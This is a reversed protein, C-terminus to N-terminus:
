KTTFDNQSLVPALTFAPTMTTSTAEVVPSIIDLSKVNFGGATDENLGNRSQPRETVLQSMMVISGNGLLVQRTVLSSGSADSCDM